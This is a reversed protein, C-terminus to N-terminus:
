GAGRLRGIVCRLHGLSDPYADATFGCAKMREQVLAAQNYSVELGLLGGPRLHRPAQAILRDIIEMPDPGPTLALHPEYDRVEPMLHAMEDAGIYPPNAAIAHLRTGPPLPAYLDGTLFQIRDACGLRRANEQAVAVAGPSLDVAFLRAGPLLRCLGVAICGSGTGIDALEYAPAGPWAQAVRAALTSVLVETEPRPILVDPTVVFEMGMFEQTGLIYQLPERRVRRAVLASFAAEEAASLIRDPHLRLQSVSTGLVHAMLWAAEAAGLELGAAALEKAARVMAQATRMTM